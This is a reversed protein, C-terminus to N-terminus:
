PLFVPQLHKLVPNQSSYITRLSIFHRSTSSCQMILLKMVQVRRRTYNFHYTSSSSIPLAHLVCPPLFPSCISNQRSLWFSTSWYSSISTLPLIINLQIDSLISYYPSSQDPEPYPGTSSQQSCPVSGELEM